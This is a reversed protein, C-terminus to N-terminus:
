MELSDKELETNILMVKPTLYVECWSTYTHGVAEKVESFRLKSVM